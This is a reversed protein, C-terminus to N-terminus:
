RGICNSRVAATGAFGETANKGNVREPVRWNRSSRRALTLAAEVESANKTEVTRVLLSDTSYSGDFAIGKGTVGGFRDGNGGFSGSGTVAFGKGKGTPDLLDLLDGNPFLEWASVFVRKQQPIKSQTFTSTNYRTNTRTTTTDFGEATTRTVGEITDSEMRKFLARSVKSILGPKDIEYSGGGDGFLARSKGSGSQGHAVLLADFGRYLWHTIDRWMQDPVGGTPSVGCTKYTRTRSSENRNSMQGANESSEGPEGRSSTADANPDDVELVARAGGDAEAVARVIEKKPFVATGRERLVAARAPAPCVSVYVSAVGVAVDKGGGMAELEKALARTDDTPFAFAADRAGGYSRDGEVPSM